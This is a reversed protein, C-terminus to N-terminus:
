KRRAAPARIGVTLEDRVVATGPPLSGHEEEWERCAGDAPRKQILHWAKHKAVHACFQEWSDEEGSNLGVLKRRTLTATGAATRASEQGTQKMIAIIQSHVAGLESDVNRVLEKSKAEIAKKTDRLKRGREVLQELTMTSEAGM